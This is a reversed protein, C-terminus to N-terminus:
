EGAADEVGVRDAGDFPPVYVVYAVAPEPGANRFAHVAGRPVYLISGEGVAREEKGLRLFGRGQLVVVMLDHCEHRHLPERDRIWVLHHSTSADRGLERVRLAEDPGLRTEGALTALPRTLRGEPLGADLVAPSTASGACALWAVALGPLLRVPLVPTSRSVTM